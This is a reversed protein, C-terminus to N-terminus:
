ELAPLQRIEHTSLESEVREFGGRLLSRVLREAASIQPRREPLGKGAQLRHVAQQETVSELVLKGHRVNGAQQALGRRKTHLPPQVPQQPPPAPGQLRHSDM